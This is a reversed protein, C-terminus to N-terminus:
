LSNAESRTSPREVELRFDAFQHGIVMKLLIPGIALIVGLTSVWFAVNIGFVARLGILSILINLPAALLGAVLGAVLQRWWLFFWLQTRRRLNLKFKTVEPSDTIARISFGRFSSSLCRHVFLFLGIAGLVMQLLLREPQSLSSLRLAYARGSVQLWAVPAYGVLGFLQTPWYICWYARLAEWYSLEINSPEASVRRYGCDCASAGFLLPSGCSPCNV